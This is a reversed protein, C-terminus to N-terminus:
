FFIFTMFSNLFNMLNQKIISGNSYITRQKIVSNKESLFSYKEYCPDYLDIEIDWLKRLPDIKEEKLYFSNDYFFGKGCGYDLM